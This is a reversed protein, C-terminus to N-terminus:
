YTANIHSSSSSSSSPAVPCIDFQLLLKSVARGSRGGISFMTTFLVICIAMVAGVQCLASRANNSFSFKSHFFIDMLRNTYLISHAIESEPAVPWKTTLPAGTMLLCGAILGIVMVRGLPLVMQDVWVHLRSMGHNGCLPMSACMMGPKACEDRMEVRFNQAAPHLTENLSSLHLTYYWPCNASTPLLHGIVSKYHRGMLEILGFSFM